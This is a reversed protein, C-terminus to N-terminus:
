SQDSVVNSVQSAISIMMMKFVLFLACILVDFAILGGAVTSKGVGGKASSVAVV